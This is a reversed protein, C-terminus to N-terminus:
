HVSAAQFLPQLLERGTPEETVWPVLATRKSFREAAEGIFQIDHGRAMLLPDRSGSRAFTQNIIWASPEIQTRRLDDQLAAAEHVPTAEPLTVVLVRTFDGDRLRPLVQRVEDLNSAPDTSVLLVRRGGDALAIASACALSTEGVGDKGTFFLFRTPSVLFRALSSEATTKMGALLEPPGPQRRRTAGGM